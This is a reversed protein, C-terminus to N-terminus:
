CQRRTVANEAHEIASSPTLQTRPPKTSFAPPTSANPLCAELLPGFDLFRDLPAQYITGAVSAVVINIIKERSSLPDFGGLGPVPARVGELVGNSAASSLIKCERDDTGVEQLPTAWTPNPNCARPTGDKPKHCRIQPARAM